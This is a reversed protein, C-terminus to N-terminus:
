STANTAATLNLSDQTHLFSTVDAAEQDSLGLFINTSPAKVVFETSSTCAEARKERVARKPRLMHPKTTWPAKPEPRAFSPAVATAVVLVIFLNSLM